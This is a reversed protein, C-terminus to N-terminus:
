HDGGDLPTEEGNLQLVPFVPVPHRLSQVAHCNAEARRVVRLVDERPAPSEVAVVYRLEEMASSSDVALDFKLDNPFEARLDMSAATLPIGEVSAFRV